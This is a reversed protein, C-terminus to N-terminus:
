GVLGEAGLERLYNAVIAQIAERGAEMAKKWSYQRTSEGMAAGRLADTYDKHIQSAVNMKRFGLEGARRVDPMPIGTGGHLSLPIGTRQALLEILEFRLRPPNRYFGHANGVSPALLDVGTERVFREAEEPDTLRAQGKGDGLEEGFRGLEGEISAGRGRALRVMERTRRINDDLPQSSGDFMVSRFGLDLAQAVLAEDHGHDLHLVVPVSSRRAFFGALEVCAELGIYTAGPAWVLLLAPCRAAECARLVGLLFDPQGGAIDFGPLCVRRADLAPLIEQFSAFM